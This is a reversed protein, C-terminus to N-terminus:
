APLDCGPLPPLGLVHPEDLLLEDGGRRVQDGSKRALPKALQDIASQKSTAVIAVPPPIEHGRAPDKAPGQVRAAPLQLVQFIQKRRQQRFSRIQAQDTTVVAPMGCGSFRWASTC